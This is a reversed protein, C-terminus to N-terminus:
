EKGELSALYDVLLLLVAEASERKNQIRGGTWVYREVREYGEAVIAVYVLGVPKQPTGGGPGASGTTSLGISTGIVRRVGRAMALACEASVAGVTNLVEAPVGLVREKVENSYSLIGGQFYDSSGAINTLRDGVLGGTCSEATAVTLKFRRLPAAIRGEALLIDQNNEM